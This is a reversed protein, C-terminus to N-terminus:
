DRVIQINEGVRGVRMLKFHDQPDLWLDWDVDEVKMSLHVLERQTGNLTVKEQAVPTISIRV